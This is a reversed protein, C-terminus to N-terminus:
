RFPAIPWPQGPLQDRGGCRPSILLFGATLCRRFGILRVFGLAFLFLWYRPERAPSQKAWTVAVGARAGGAGGSDEILSLAQAWPAVKSLSPNKEPKTKYYNSRVDINDLSSTAM